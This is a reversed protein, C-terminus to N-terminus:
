GAPHPHKGCGARRRPGHATPKRLTAMQLNMARLPRSCCRCRGRPPVQLRLADPEARITGSRCPPVDQDYGRRQARVPDARCRGTEARFAHGGVPGRQRFDRHQARRAGPKGVAIDTPLMCGLFMGWGMQPYQSPTYHAATSDSAIFVRIPTKPATEATRTEAQGSAPHAPNVAAPAAWAPAILAIQTAAMAATLWTKM